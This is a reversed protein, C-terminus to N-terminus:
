NIACLYVAAFVLFAATLAYYRMTSIVHEAENSVYEVFEDRDARKEAFAALGEGIKMMLGGILSRTKLVLTLLVLLSIALLIYTYKTIM